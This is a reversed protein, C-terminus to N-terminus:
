IHAQQILYTQSMQAQLQIEMGLIGIIVLMLKMLQFPQAELSNLLNMPYYQLLIIVM